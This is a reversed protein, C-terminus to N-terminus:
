DKIEIEQALVMRFGIGNDKLDPEVYDRSASRCSDPVNGYNGGRIVKCPTEVFYYGADFPKLKRLKVTLPNSQLPAAEGLERYAGPNYWDYCWEAVNGLMDRLGFANPKKAGTPASVRFHDNRAMNREPRIKFVDLKISLLDIANAYTGGEDGFKDGWYYYYDTGARCAYEWEAETPLRYEYGEPLRGEKKENETVMKCFASAIHWDVKVAPQASSNLEYHRWAPTQHHPFFKRFQANTIETRCIWFEKPIVVSHRPLENESGPEKARKGMYFHGAPIHVMDTLVTANIFNRGKEEELKPANKTIMEIYSNQKDLWNKYNSIDLLSVKEAHIIAMLALKDKEYGSSQAIREDLEKLRSNIKEIGELRERERKWEEVFYAGVAFLLIIGFILFVIKAARIKNNQHQDLINLFPDNKSQRVGKVRDTRREKFVPHKKFKSKPTKKDKCKASDKEESKKEKAESPNKEKSEKPELEKKEKDEM